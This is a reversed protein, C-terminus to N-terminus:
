EPMRIGADRYTKAMNIRRRATEQLWLNIRGGEAARGAEAMTNKVVGQISLSASNWAVARAADPYMQAIHDRVQAAVEKAVRDIVDDPLPAAPLREMVGGGPKHGDRIAAAEARAIWQECHAVTEHYAKDMADREDWAALLDIAMATKLRGDPTLDLTLDRILSSLFDRTLPPTM